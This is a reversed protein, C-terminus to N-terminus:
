LLSGKCKPLRLRRRRPGASLFAAAEARLEKTATLTSKGQLLAEFPPGWWNAAEAVIAIRKMDSPHTADFKLDGM